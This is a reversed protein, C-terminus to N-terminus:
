LGTSSAFLLFLLSLAALDEATPQFMDAEDEGAGFEGFDNMTDTALNRFFGTVVDEGRDQVSAVQRVVHLRIFPPDSVPEHLLDLGNRRAHWVHDRRTIVLRMAVETLLVARSPLQLRASREALGDRM